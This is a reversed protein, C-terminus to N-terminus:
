LTSNYTHKQICQLAATINYASCPVNELILTMEKLQNPLAYTQWLYWELRRWLNTQLDGALGLSCLYYGFHTHFNKLHPTNNCQCTTILRPSKIFCASFSSSSRPQDLATSSICYSCSTCYM